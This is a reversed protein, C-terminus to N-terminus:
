QCTSEDKFRKREHFFNDKDRRRMVATILRKTEETAQRRPENVQRTTKGLHTEINERQLLFAKQETWEGTNRRTNGIHIRVITENLTQSCNRDSVSNHRVRNDCNFPVTRRFFSLIAHYFIGASM